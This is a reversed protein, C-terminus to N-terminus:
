RESHSSLRILAFVGIGIILFAVFLIIWINSNDNTLSESSVRSPLENVNRFGGLLDRYEKGSSSVSLLKCSTLGINIIKTKESSSFGPFDSLNTHNILLFGPNRGSCIKELKMEHNDIMNVWKARIVLQDCSSWGEITDPPQFSPACIESCSPNDPFNVPLLCGRFYSGITGPEVMNMNSTERDIMKFIEDYADSERLKEILSVFKTFSKNIESARLHLDKLHLHSSQLLVRVLDRIEDMNVCIGCDSVSNM